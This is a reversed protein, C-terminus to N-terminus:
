KGDTTTTGNTDAAVLVASKDHDTPLEGRDSGQNQNTRVQNIPALM